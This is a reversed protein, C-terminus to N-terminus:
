CTGPYRPAAPVPLAARDVKGGSTLPFEPLFTVSSPMMYAPLQRRAYALVDAAQPQRGPRAVLYAAIRQGSGSGRLCAAAHLVDAHSM